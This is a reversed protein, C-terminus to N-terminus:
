TEEPAEEPAAEEEGEGKKRPTPEYEVDSATSKLSKKVVDIVEKGCQPCTTWVRKHQCFTAPLAPRGVQPQSNLRLSAALCRAPPM